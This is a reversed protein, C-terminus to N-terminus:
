DLYLEWSSLVTFASIYTNTEIYNEGWGYNVKIQNYGNRNTYGIGVCYHNSTGIILPIGLSVAEKMENYGNYFRMRVSGAIFNISLYERMGYDLMFSGNGEPEIYQVLEKVLEIGYTNNYSSGSNKQSYDAFDGYNGALYSLHDDYYALLIACAVSGCVGPVENLETDTLDPYFEAFNASVNCNYYRTEYPLQGEEPASYMSTTGSNYESNYFSSNTNKADEFSIIHGTALNQFGASVKTYYNFVGNYYYKTNNNIYFAHSYDKAYELVIGTHYDYIAYGMPLFSYFIAVARDDFAYLFTSFEVQPCDESNSRNYVNTYGMQAYVNELYMEGCAAANSTTIPNVSSILALAIIISVLKRM